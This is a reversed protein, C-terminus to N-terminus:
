GGAKPVTGGIVQVNIPSPRRFQEALEFEVLEGPALNRCNPRGVPSYQVFIQLQRADSYKDSPNTTM